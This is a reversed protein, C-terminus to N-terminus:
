SAQNYLQSRALICPWVSRDKGFRATYFINKSTTSSINFPLVVLIDMCDFVESKTLAQKKKAYKWCVGHTQEGMAVEGGDLLCSRAPPDRQPQQEDQDHRLGLHDPSGWPSSPHPESTSYNSLQWQLCSCKTPLFSTCTSIASTILNLASVTHMWFVGYNICDAPQSKSTTARSQGQIKLHFDSTHSIRACKKPRNTTLNQRSLTCSLLVQENFTATISM